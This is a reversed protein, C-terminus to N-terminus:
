DHEVPEGVAAAAFRYSVGTLDESVQWLRRWVDEDYARGIGTVLHPHGRQEFLQDPGVFSGNALGPYTAAYLSPLAGMDASQAVLLNSVAMFLQEVKRPGAFQLNTRAYGPHAAASTLKTGAAAARRALEFAFMLNAM